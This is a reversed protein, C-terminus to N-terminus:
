IQGPTLLPIDPLINLSNTQKEYYLKKIFLFYRHKYWLTHKNNHNLNFRLYNQAIKQTEVNNNRILFFFFANITLIKRIKGPAM